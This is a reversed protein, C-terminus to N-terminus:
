TTSCMNMFTTWLMYKNDVVYPINHLVNATKGKTVWLMCGCYIFDDVVYMWLMHDKIHQPHINHVVVQRHQPACINHLVELNVSSYILTALYQININTVTMNM